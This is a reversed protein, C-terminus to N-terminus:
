AATAARVARRRRSGTAGQSVAAAKVPPKRGAKTEAQQHDVGERAHIVLEKASALTDRLAPQGDTNYNEIISSLLSEVKDLKKRAKKTKM